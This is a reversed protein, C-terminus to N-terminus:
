SQPRLPVHPWPTYQLYHCLAPGGVPSVAARAGHHAGHTRHSKLPEHACSLIMSIM